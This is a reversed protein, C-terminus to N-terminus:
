FYDWLTKHKKPNSIARKIKQANTLKFSKLLEDNTATKQAITKKPTMKQKVHKPTKKKISKSIVKDKTTVKIDKKTNAVNVPLPKLPTEGLITLVKNIQNHLAINNPQLKLQTKLLAKAETFRFSKILIDSRTLVDENAYSFNTLTIITLLLLINKLM